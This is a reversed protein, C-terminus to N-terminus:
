RPPTQESRPPLVADKRGETVEAKWGPRLLWGQDQRHEREPDGVQGQRLVGGAVAGGLWQGTVLYPGEKGQMSPRLVKSPCAGLFSGAEAGLPGDSHSPLGERGYIMVATLCGRDEM